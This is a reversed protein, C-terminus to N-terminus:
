KRVFDRSILTLRFNAEPDLNGEPCQSIFPCPTSPLAQRWQAIISSSFTGFGASISAPDTIDEGDIMLSQVQSSCVHTSIAYKIAKWLKRSDNKNEEILNSYYHKKAQRIRSTVLNRLSWYVQWDSESGSKLAKKHHFNRQMILARLEDMLWPLANSRVRRTRMPAHKDTTNILTDRFSTWAVEVTFSTDVTEWPPLICIRM